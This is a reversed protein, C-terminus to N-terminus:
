SKSMHCYVWVPVTGPMSPLTSKFRAKRSKGMEEYIFAAMLKERSTAAKKRRRGCLEPKVLVPPRNSGARAPPPAEGPRM